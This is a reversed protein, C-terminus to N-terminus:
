RKKTTTAKVTTSATTTAKIPNTKELQEQIFKKPFYKETEELSHFGTYVTDNIIFAPINTEVLKYKGILTKIIGLDLGYDFSYVRLDPYKKRLETLVYGQKACESCEKETTYFYLIFVNKVGCRESSKKMLLYDKVQLLSYYKKLRNIEEKNKISQESYEIRTALDNLETSLMSSGGDKCTVDQLLAFQTESSQIDIAIDDQIYKVNELKKNNLYSSLIFASIFIVVTIFLVIVYQVPSFGYPETEISKHRNM